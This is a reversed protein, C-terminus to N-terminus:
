GKGNLTQCLELAEKEDEFGIDEGRGNLTSFVAPGVIPQGRLVFNLPLDDMLGSDDVYGHIGGSLRIMCLTAGDLLTRFADLSDEVVLVEAPLNPRKHVVRIHSM